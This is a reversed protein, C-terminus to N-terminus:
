GVIKYIEEWSKKVIRVSNGNCMDEDIGQFTKPVIITGTCNNCMRMSCGDLLVVDDFTINNCMNLQISTFAGQVTTNNAMKLKKPSQIIERISKEDGQKGTEQAPIIEETSFREYQQQNIGANCFECNKRYPNQSFGGGCQPCGKEGQKERITSNVKKDDSILRHIGDTAKWERLIKKGVPQTIEKKDVLKQDDEETWTISTPTEKAVNKAPATPPASPKVESSSVKTFSTKHLDGPSVDGAVNVSGGSINVGGDIRNPM